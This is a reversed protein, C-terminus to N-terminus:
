KAATAVATAAPTAAAAAKARMQAIEDCTNWVDKAPVYTVNTLVAFPYKPDKGLTGVYEGVDAMHDCARITIKGRLSDVSLDDLAKAVADGNTSGAKEAAAKLTLVSDYMMIAWDSPYTGTLKKHAAIFKQMAPNDIAYFPARAYGYVAKGSVPADNGLEKLGDTDFLGIFASDDFVGLPTAQQVFAALDDGWQSSYIAEPKASQLATIYPSMDREGLKPWQSTKITAKSNAATLAPQFTAFSDRGFAYDPGITAWNTYPLKAVFGAVARSEITTNPVLQVMYPHGQTTTLQVSNSTHFAVVVKNEKAVQSIALAVGSSTGGLLFDVKDQLIMQRAINAGVDAKLQADRMVFEVQKGLIGGSANLDNIAIQLGAIQSQSFVYGIGSIDAVFGFKITTKEQAHTLGVNLLTVAVLAVILFVKKARM